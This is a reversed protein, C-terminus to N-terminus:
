AKTPLTLHTYSVPIKDARQPTLAGHTVKKSIVRPFEDQVRKSISISVNINKNVIWRIVDSGKEDCFYKIVANTDFFLILM